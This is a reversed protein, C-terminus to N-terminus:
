DGDSEGKKEKILSALLDRGAPGVTFATRYAVLFQIFFWVIFIKFFLLLM